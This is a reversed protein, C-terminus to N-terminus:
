KVILSGIAGTAFGAVMPVATYNGGAMITVVGAALGLGGFMLMKKYNMAM